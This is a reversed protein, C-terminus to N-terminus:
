GLVAVIQEDAVPVSIQAKGIGALLTCHVQNHCNKKDSHMYELLQRLEEDSYHPLGIEQQTLWLRYHDAVSEPLGFFKQSLRMAPLIGMAVAIGHPMEEGKSLALSEIAHGFTHGLNLQQREGRDYPDQEVLQQKYTASRLILEDITLKNFSELWKDGLEQNEPDLLFTKLAEALGAKYQLEPLTTLFVPDLCVALPNHFFGIRNKLNDLNVAVKGGISADVMALLTTPINIYDIGRLLSAAVFGGLDSVTGGGLNLILSHRDATALGNWLLQATDLRKAQEGAPVELVPVESLWPIAELLKPLCLLRINHDLVLFLSDGAAHRRSILPEISRLGHEIM